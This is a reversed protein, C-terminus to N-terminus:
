ISVHAHFIHALLNFANLNNITFEGTQAITFFTTTLCAFVAINFPINLDMQDWIKAIVEITYPECPSCKSSPPSLSKSAKLLANLKNKNLNWTLGHIIHWACVRSVYNVITTNVYLGVMLAMFIAMLNSNAPAHQDESIVKSNCFAHFALLGSGYTEKTSDSWTHAISSM